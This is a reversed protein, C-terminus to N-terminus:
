TLNRKGTVSEWCNGNMQMYLTFHQDATGLVHMGLVFHWPSRSSWVWIYEEPNFTGTFASFRHLSFPDHFGIPIHWHLASLLLNNELIFCWYSLFSLTNRSSTWWWNEQALFHVFKHSLYLNHCGFWCGFFLSSFIVM